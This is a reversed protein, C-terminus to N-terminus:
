DELKDDGSIITPELTIEQKDVFGGNCRIIHELSKQAEEVSPTFEYEVEKVVEGTLKDVTKSYGKQVDRRAISTTRELAEKLDMLKEDELEKLRNKIYDSIATNQLLKQVNSNIYKHSYGAKRAADSANGSIIYEDAFRQQKITLKKMDDAGKTGFFGISSTDVELNFLKYSPPTINRTRLIELIMSDYFCPLKTRLNEMELYFIDIKETYYFDM